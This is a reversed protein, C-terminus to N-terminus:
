CASPKSSALKEGSKGVIQTIAFTGSPVRQAALVVGLLAARQLSIWRTCSGNRGRDPGDFCLVVRHHPVPVAEFVQAFRIPLTQAKEVAPVCAEWLRM